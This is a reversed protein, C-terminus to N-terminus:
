REAKSKLSALASIVSAVVKEADGIKTDLEESIRDLLEPLKAISDFKEDRSCDSWPKVSPDEPSNDDGHVIAIRFRSGVRAYAIASYFTIPPHDDLEETRSAFIVESYIGVSCEDNLFDEVAKVTAAADDSLKNLRAAYTRLHSFRDRPDRTM